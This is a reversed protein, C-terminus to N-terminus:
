YCVTADCREKLGELMVRVLVVTVPIPRVCILRHIAEAELNLTESWLALAKVACRESWECSLTKRFPQVSVSSRSLTRPRCMCRWGVRVAATHQACDVSHHKRTTRACLLRLTTHQTCSWQISYETYQSASTPLSSFFIIASTSATPLPMLWSSRVCTRNGNTSHSM